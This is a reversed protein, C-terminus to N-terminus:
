PLRVSLLDPLIVATEGGAAPVRVVGVPDYLGVEIRATGRTFPERWAM